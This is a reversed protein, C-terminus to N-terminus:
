KKAPEKKAAAKRAPEKQAPGPTDLIQDSDDQTLSIHFHYREPPHLSVMYETPLNKDSYAIKIMKILAAGIPVDLAVATQSDALTASIMQDAREIVVGAEDFLRALPKRTMDKISWIRGIEEPIYTSIQSHPTGKFLCVRVTHQVLAGPEIGLHQAVEMTAPVYNLSIVKVTNDRGRQRLSDTLSQVSAHITRKRGATHSVRTGRGRERIALGSRAIENLARKATIRSVKFLTSIEQESPLLAGDAYEGEAIKNKLILFIQHYLPSRMDHQLVQATGLLQLDSTNRAM